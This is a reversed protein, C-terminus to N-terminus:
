PDPSLDPSSSSRIRADEMEETWRRASTSKELRYREVLPDCVVCVPELLKKKNTSTLSMCAREIKVGRAGCGGENPSANAPEEKGPEQEKDIRSRPCRGASKSHM